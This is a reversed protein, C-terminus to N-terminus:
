ASYRQRHRRVVIHIAGKDVKDDVLLIRRNEELPCLGAERCCLGTDRFCTNTSPFPVSSSDM